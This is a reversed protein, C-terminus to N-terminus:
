TLTLFVDLTKFIINHCIFMPPYITKDDFCALTATPKSCNKIMAQM